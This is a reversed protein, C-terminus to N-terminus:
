RTYVESSENTRKRPKCIEYIQPFYFINLPDYIQQRCPPLTENTVNTWQEYIFFTHMLNNIHQSAEHFMFHTPIASNQVNIYSTVPNGTRVNNFIKKETNRPNVSFKESLKRIQCLRATRILGICFVFRASVQM